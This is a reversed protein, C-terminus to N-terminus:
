FPWYRLPRYKIDAVISDLQRQVRATERVIASDRM